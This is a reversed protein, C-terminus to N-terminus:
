ATIQKWTYTSGSVGVCMYATETTTDIYIQGVRGVTSTTPASSDTTPDVYGKTAADHANQPAYLGTILRYETNNYGYYPVDHSGVDIQGKQTVRSYAGLAVSGIIDTDIMAGYGLKVSSADGNFIVSTDLLRARATIAVGDYNTLCYYLGNQSADYNVRSSYFIFITNDYTGAGNRMVIFMRYPHQISDDVTGPEGSAALYVTVHYQSDYVGGEQPNKFAYIGTPLKWMAIGQKTGTEPWDYMSRTLYTVGDSNLKIGDFTLQGGVEQIPLMNRLKDVLANGYVITAPVPAPPTSVDPRTFFETGYDDVSYVGNFEDAIDFVIPEPLVYLINLNDYIYDVGMAEVRALEEPSYSKRGIRQIYKKDVFSLRDAVGHVSPIGYSLTPLVKGDKSYTPIRVVSETYGAWPDDDRSGSWVLAILVGAAVVGELWCYDEEISDYTIWDVEMPYDEAITMSMSDRLSIRWSGWEYSASFSAVDEWTKLNWYSLTQIYSMFKAVDLVPNVIQPGHSTIRTSEEGTIYVYGDEEPTFKSNELTIPTTEGGITPSFAIGTYTGSVRYEHGGIVHAYGTESNYQNYGTSILSAPQAIAIQGVVAAAYNVTITDGNDMIGNVTLGYDALDVVRGDLKWDMDCYFVYEGDEQVQARWTAKDLEVTTDPSAFNPSLVINEDTHGTQVTNGDIYQLSAEGTAVSLKGATTRYIFAGKEVQTTDTYIQNAQEVHSAITGDVSRAAKSDRIDYNQDDKNVKDIYAM